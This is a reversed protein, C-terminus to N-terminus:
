ALAKYIEGYRDLNQKMLIQLEDDAIGVSIPEKSVEAVVEDLLPRDKRFLQILIERLKDREITMIM